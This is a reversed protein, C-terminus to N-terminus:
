SLTPRSESSARPARSVRPRRNARLVREVEDAIATLAFKGLSAIHYHRGVRGGYVSWTCRAVPRGEADLVYPNTCDPKAVHKTRARPTTPAATPPAHTSVASAPEAHPSSADVIVVPEAPPAPASAADAEARLPANSPRDGNAASRLVVVTAAGALTAAAVLSAIALRHSRRAPLSEASGASAAEYLDQASGTPEAAVNPAITGSSASDDGARTRDLEAVRRRRAVLEDHKRADIWEAVQAAPARRMAAELASAMELASEFRDGPKKALGRAVIADLDRTVGAVIESPSAPTEELVRRMTVQVDSLAGGYLRRGTLMEWLVVSAGFLDTRRDVRGATVQEPAM